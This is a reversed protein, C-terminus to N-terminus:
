TMNIKGTREEEEEGGGGGMREGATNEPFFLTVPYYSKRFQATVLSASFQFCHLCQLQAVDQQHLPPAVAVRGSTCSVGRTFVFLSTINKQRRENIVPPLKVVNMCPCPRQFRGRSVSLSSGGSVGAGENAGGGGATQRLVAEIIIDDISATQGSLTEYKWILSSTLRPSLGPQTVIVRAAGGGGHAESVM